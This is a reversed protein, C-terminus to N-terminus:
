PKLYSLINLHQPTSITLHQSPSIHQQEMNEAQKPAIYWTQFAIFFVFVLVTMIILRKQLGSNLNNGNNM